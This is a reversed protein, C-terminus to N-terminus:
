QQQKGKRFSLLLRDQSGYSRSPESRPRQRGTALQDLMRSSKALLFLTSSGIRTPMLM